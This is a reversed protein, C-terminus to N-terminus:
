GVVLLTEQVMCHGGTNLHYETFCVGMMRIIAMPHSIGVRCIAKLVSPNLASASPCVNM